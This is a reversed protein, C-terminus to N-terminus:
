FAALFRAQVMDFDYNGPLDDRRGRATESNDVHAYNLYVRINPNAYWNVGFTMIKASGGEVDKDDLDLTSFRAAVEWAGGKAKPVVRGFEANASDYPHTDDTLFFGAYVYGGGFGLSELNDLRQVNAMM